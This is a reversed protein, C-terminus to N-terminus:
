HLWASLWLVLLGLRSHLCLYSHLRPHLWLILCLGLHVLLLRLSLHLLLGQVRVRLWNFYLWNLLILCGRDILLLGNLHLCLDLRILLRLHILLRHLDLDHLRLPLAEVNHHVTLWDVNLNTAAAHTTSHAKTAASLAWQSLCERTTWKPVMKMCSRSHRCLM